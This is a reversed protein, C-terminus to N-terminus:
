GPQTGPVNISTDWTPNVLLNPQDQCMMAAMLLQQAANLTALGNSQMVAGYMASMAAANPGADQQWLQSGTALNGTFLAAIINAKQTGAAPTPLSGTLAFISAAISYMTRPVMRVYGNAQADALTPEHTILVENPGLVYGVDVAHYSFTGKTLAYNM